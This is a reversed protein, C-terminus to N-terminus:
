IQEMKTEVLESLYKVVHNHIIKSRYIRSGRVDSIPEFEECISQAISKIDLAKFQKNEVERTFVQSLVPTKAVGGLALRANIIRNGQYSIAIATSVASIDVSKRKSAKLCRVFRQDQVIPILISSIIERDRLATKRYDLFFDSLQLTREGNESALVIQCDLALLLPIGDGIPSANGINGALTGFNRIQESAIRRIIYRLAPIHKHIISSHLLESYTINAGIRVFSQDLSLEKLCAIQSIDILIPYHAKQINIQVMIDTGGNILRYAKDQHTNFLSFLEVMSGAVYYEECPYLRDVTRISYGAKQDFELLKEEVDLCWEPILSGKKFHSSLYEAAKLISDYGTCRCLNGELAAMIRERDPNNENVLLAFLSMVFGPTCYGCQTSHFDLMVQQIPHLAEPTGLGEITILHKGHLKAAPYLCSNIAEYHISGNLVSAVVVTCAGCDGENCSCKTGFMGQEQHLFDLTTQAPAISAKTIRGNLWLYIQNFTYSASFNEPCSKVSNSRAAARTEKCTIKPDRDKMVGELNM